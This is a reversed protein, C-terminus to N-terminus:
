EGFDFMGGGINLSEVGSCVLHLACGPEGCFSRM